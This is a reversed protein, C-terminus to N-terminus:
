KRYRVGTSPRYRPEDYVCGPVPTCPAQPNLAARMTSASTYPARPPEIPAPANGGQETIPQFDHVEDLVLDLDLGSIRLPDSAPALQSTRRGTALPGDM